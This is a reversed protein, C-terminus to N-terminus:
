KSSCGFLLYTRVFGGQNLSIVNALLDQNFIFSDTYFDGDINKINNWFINEQIKKM